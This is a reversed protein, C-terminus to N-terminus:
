ANSSPNSSKTLLRRTRTNKTLTHPIQLQIPMLEASNEERKKKKKRTRTGRTEHLICSQQSIPSDFFIYVVGMMPSCVRYLSELPSLSLCLPLPLSRTICLPQRSWHHSALSGKMNKIIGWTCIAVNPFPPMFDTKRSYSKETSFCHSRIM